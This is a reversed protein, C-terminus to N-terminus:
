FQALIWTQGDSTEPFQLHILQVTKRQRKLWVVDSYHACAHTEQFAARQASYRALRCLFASGLSLLLSTDQANYIARATSQFCLGILNKAVVLIRKCACLFNLDRKLKDHYHVSAPTQLPSTHLLPFVHFLTPNGLILLMGACESTRYNENRSCIAELLNSLNARFASLAKLSCDAQTEQFYSHLKGIIVTQQHTM